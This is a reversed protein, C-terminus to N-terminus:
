RFASQELRRRDDEKWMDVATPRMKIVNVMESMESRRHLLELVFDSYIKQKSILEDIEVGDLSEIDIEDHNIITDQPLEAPRFDFSM